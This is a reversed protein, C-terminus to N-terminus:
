RADEDPGPVAPGAPPLPVTARDVLEGLTTHEPKVKHVKGHVPDIRFDDEPFEEQEWACYVM